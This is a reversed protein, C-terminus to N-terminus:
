GGTGSRIFESQVPDIVLGNTTGLGRRPPACHTVLRLYSDQTWYWGLFPAGAFAWAFPHLAVLFGALVGVRRDGTDQGLLLTLPALLASLLLLVIQAVAFWHGVAEYAVALLVPLLPTCMASPPTEPNLTHHGISALTAGIQLTVHLWNTYRM